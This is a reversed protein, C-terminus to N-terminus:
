EEEEADERKFCMFIGVGIVFVVAVVGSIVVFRNMGGSQVSVEDKKLNQIRLREEAILSSLDDSLHKDSYGDLSEVCLTYGGEKGSLCRVSITIYEVNSNEVFEHFDFLLEVNEYPACVTSATSKFSKSGFAVKLEYLANKDKADNEISFNLAVYPTFVLNEEYEYACYLESYESPSAFAGAFHAKLARGSVDSYDVNLKDCYSGGFWSATDTQYAFDFYAYSGIIKESLRDLVSLKHTKKMGLEGGYMNAVVEYWSNARLLKLQPKTAEFCESTDIKGVLESILALSDHDGKAEAADFSAVFSILMDDSLLKFYSYAYATSLVNYSLRESVNWVFIYGDPANKYKTRLSRLYDSFVRVSDASLIGDGNPKLVGSALTKDSLGYPIVDTDILASFNFPEVFKNDLM